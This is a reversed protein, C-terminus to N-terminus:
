PFFIAIWVRILVSLIPIFVSFLLTRLINTNIPWTRVALLRQEYAVLANILSSLKGPDQNQNLRMALDRFARNVHNHISTLERDKEAVLLLHTPRMSLFFILVTFIVLILNVIWFEISALNAEQYTLILSITIGGIFVLALLLSQNGIAEFPTPNLVDIKMDQRHLVTIFRTSMVAVFITWALLGYMLGTSMIGYSKLWPSVQQFGNSLTSLIGLIMGIGFTIWEHLPNISSAQAILRNYAQDNLNVVTRMANVVDEEARSMRPSVLWIYLIIIPALLFFRWTGRSIFDVSVGDLYAAIFPLLLLVLSVIITMWIPRPHVIYRDFFSSTRTLYLKESTLIEDHERMNVEKV